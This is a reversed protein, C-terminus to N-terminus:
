KQTENFLLKEKLENVEEQIYSRELVKQSLSKDFSDLMQQSNKSSNNQSSKQSM